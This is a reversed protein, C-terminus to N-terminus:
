IHLNYMPAQEYLVIQVYPKMATLLMMFLHDALANQKLPYYINQCKGFPVKQVTIFNLLLIKRIYLLVNFNFHISRSFTTISLSLLGFTQLLASM